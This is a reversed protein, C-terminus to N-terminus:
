KYECAGTLSSLAPFFNLCNEFCFEKQRFALLNIGTIFIEESSHM